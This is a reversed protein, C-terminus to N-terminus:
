STAPEAQVSRHFEISYSAIQRLRINRPLDYFVMGGHQQSPFFLRLALEHIDELADFGADGEVGGRKAPFISNEGICGVPQRIAKDGFRVGTGADREEPPHQLHM